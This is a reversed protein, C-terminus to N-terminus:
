ALELSAADVMGLTSAAFSNDATGVRVGDLEAVKLMWSLTAPECLILQLESLLESNAASETGSGATTFASFDSVHHEASM